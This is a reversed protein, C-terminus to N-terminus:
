APLIRCRICSKQLESPEASGASKFMADLFMKVCADYCICEILIESFPISPDTNELPITCNISNSLLLAVVFQFLM